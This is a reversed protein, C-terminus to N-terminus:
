FPLPDNPEYIERNENLLPPMSGRPLGIMEPGEDAMNVRELWSNTTQGAHHEKQNEVYAIARDLQSEGLTFVGYGRQWEFKENLIGLGNIFHSSAGKLRKVISAISHKPPISGM